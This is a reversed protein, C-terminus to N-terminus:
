YGFGELHLYIGQAGSGKHVAREDSLGVVSRRVDDQLGQPGCSVVASEGEADELVSRIIARVRPRGTHIKILSTTQPRTKESYTPPPSSSSSSIPKACCCQVEDADSDENAPRKCCCGGNPGCGDSDDLVVEHPKPAVDKKELLGSAEISISGSVSIEAEGHEPPTCTENEPDSISADLEEDCTVYVGVELKVERGDRARLDSVDQLARELVDQFWCLRSQTKIVWILRVHRTVVPSQHMWRQVLDRMLPVTFTAGTSGAFLIVSDFQQLPRISGYPGELGTFKTQLVSDAAANPLIHNKAAWKYFRRTGGKQAQVLFELKGDSPLTSVTFPHSQLPAIAHCSVFMHQGPSWSILPQAITLRTVNGPLPTLTASNAWVEAKGHLLPVNAWAGVGIRLLRDLFFIAVSVWFYIESNELHLYIAGMLGAFLVVHMMYFVEHSLRRVPLFSTLVIATLIVWCALGTQTLRDIQIKRLIYNYRAWSRFWFSMHITVTIWFIRAVWRHVWNLREYSYGTVYGILNQKGALLFVLPLQAIALSGVRYAIDEWQRQNYTDYGYFCLVLIATLWALVLFSPGLQPTRLKLHRIHYTPLSAHSLERTIATLSAYSTTWVNQPRANLSSLRQRFLLYNLINLLTAFALVSGTFIWFNEQFEAYSPMSMGGMGSMGHNHQRPRLDAM